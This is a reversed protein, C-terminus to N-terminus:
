EYGIEKLLHYLYGEDVVWGNAALVQVGDWIGNSKYMVSNQEEDVPFGLLGLIAKVEEVHKPIIHLRVGKQLNGIRKNVYPQLFPIDTLEKSTCTM